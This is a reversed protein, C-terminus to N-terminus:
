PGSAEPSALLPLALGRSSPGLRVKSVFAWAVAVVALGVAAQGVGLQSQSSLDAVKESLQMPSDDNTSDSNTDDNKKKAPEEEKEEEKGSSMGLMGEAKEVEAEMGAGVGAVQAEVGAVEAEVEGVEGEVSAEAQAPLGEVEGVAGEVSAEAQAPLGETENVAVGEVYPEVGAVEAEVGSVVGEVSAEAQALPGSNDVEKEKAPEEKEKAPEEKEKAPGEKEKEPEEKEKATEEKEKAPEEEKESLQEEKEKAPEEKEEKGSSMGLMGEAKGVGAEVGAEVGAVSAEAGTVAGQVSAEADGVKGEVGAVAGEVGAEADGVKGEVGAVAGEVGAEADGVKGEAGAVAGEVGAEADGVKGEVGAVAGEVGAEAEGVKGEVQGVVGEASAEAQCFAYGPYKESLQALHLSLLEEQGLQKIKQETEQLRPRSCKRPMKRDPGNSPEENSPEETKKPYGVLYEVNAVRAKGDVDSLEPAPAMIGPITQTLSVSTKGVALLPLYGCCCGVHRSIDEVCQLSTQSCVDLMYEHSAGKGTFLEDCDHIFHTFEKMAIVLTEHLEQAREDLDHLATKLSMAAASNRSVSTLSRNLIEQLAMVKEGVDAYRMSDQSEAKIIAKMEPITARVSAEYFLKASELSMLSAAASAVKVEVANTASAEKLCQKVRPEDTTLTSSDVCVIATKNFGFAVTGVLLPVSDGGCFEACVDALDQTKMKAGHEGELMDCTDVESQSWFATQMKEKSGDPDTFEGSLPECHLKPVKTKHEVGLAEAAAMAAHEMFGRPDADLRRGSDASCRGFYEPYQQFMKKEFAELLKQGGPTESLSAKL